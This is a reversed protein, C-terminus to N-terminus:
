YDFLPYVFMIFLIILGIIVVFKMVKRVVAGIFLILLIPLAVKLIAPLEGLSAFLDM